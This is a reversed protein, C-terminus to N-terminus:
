VLLFGRRFDVLFDVFDAVSVSSCGRSAADVGLGPLRQYQKTRSPRAFRRECTMKVSASCRYAFCSALSEFMEPNREADSRLIICEESRQSPCRLKLIKNEELKSLDISQTRNPAILKRRPTFM